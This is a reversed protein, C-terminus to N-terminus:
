RLTYIRNRENYLLLTEYLEEPSLRPGLAIFEQYLEEDDKIWAMLTPRNLDALEGSPFYIVKEQLVIEKQPVKGERFPQGNYPNYAKVSVLIEREEEYTLLCIKGVMRLAVFTAFDWVKGTDKPIQVYPVGNRSFGWVSDLPVIENDRPDGVLFSEVKIIGAQTSIMNAKIERWSFVPQNQQFHEFNLFLGDHFKFSNSLAVNESQALLGPSVITLFLFYIYKM